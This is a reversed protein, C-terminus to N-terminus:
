FGKAEDRFLNRALGAAVMAIKLHGDVDKSSIEILPPCHKGSLLLNEPADYIAPMPLRPPIPGTLKVVLSIPAERAHELEVIGVGRVELYGALNPVPRAMLQKRRTFLEVRDDAVLRAGAALLRLVLSSKGAGSRGLLLIGSLAPAGFAVGARELMVCSAHINACREPKASM